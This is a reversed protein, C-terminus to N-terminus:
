GLPGGIFRAVFGGLERGAEIGKGTTKAAEQAARATEIVAKMAQDDESM